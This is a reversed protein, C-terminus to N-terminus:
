SAEALSNQQVVRISQTTAPSEGAHNRGRAGAPAVNYEPQSVKLIECHFHLVPTGGTRGLGTALRAPRGDEVFLGRNREQGV